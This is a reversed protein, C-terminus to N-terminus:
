RAYSPPSIPSEIILPSYGQDVLSVVSYTPELAAEPAALQVHSPDDHMAVTGHWAIESSESGTEMANVRLDTGNQGGIAVVMPLWAILALVAMTSVAAAMHNNVPMEMRHAEDALRYRLHMMFEPEPELEPKAALLSVGKRLVRDYRACVTCAALHARWKETDPAEMEGDIYESHRALVEKCSLV